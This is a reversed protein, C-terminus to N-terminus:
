GEMSPICVCMNEYYWFIFHKNIQILGNSEPNPEISVFGVDRLIHEIRELNQTDEHVHNVVPRCVNPQAPVQNEWNPWIPYFSRFSESWNQQFHNLREIQGEVRWIQKRIPFSENNCFKTSILFKMSFDPLMWGMPQTDIYAALTIRPRSAVITEICIQLIIRFPRGRFTVSHWEDILLKRVDWSEHFIIPLKQKQTIAM